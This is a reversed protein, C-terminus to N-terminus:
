SSRPNGFLSAHYSCIKEQLEEVPIPLITQPINIPAAVLGTNVNM